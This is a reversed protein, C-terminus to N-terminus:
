MPRPKVPQSEFSAALADAISAADPAAAEAAVRAGFERIARATTPGIAAFNVRQSVAIIESRPILDCLNRFASPSAFIVADISGARIDALISPSVNPPALTRYAVAESVRAGARRLANPLDDDGRSGRPLFVSEGALRDGLERALSEATHGKSVYDVPLGEDKLAQDTAHGVTAVFPRNSPLFDWKIALERCREFVYRVANRSLFLIADFEALNRLHEDLASWDEPPAFAILPFVIATAGKSELAAILDRSQEAARTIVIRKGSLPQDPTAM